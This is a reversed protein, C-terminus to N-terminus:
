SHKKLSDMKLPQPKIGAPFEAEVILAKAQENEKKLESFEQDVEVPSLPPPVREPADGLNLYGRGCSSVCFGIFLALLLSSKSGIKM